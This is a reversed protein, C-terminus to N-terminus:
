RILETVTRKVSLQDRCIQLDLVIIPAQDSHETYEELKDWM